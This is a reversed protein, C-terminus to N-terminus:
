GAEEVWSLAAAVRRNRAPDDRLLGLKGFLTSVCGEVTKPSLSLARAIGANSYGQGLLAHVARESPTLGVPTPRSGRVGQLHELVPEIGTLDGLSLVVLRGRLPRASGPRPGLSRTALVPAPARGNAPGGIAPGGGASRGGASRGNALSGNAPSGNAPSGNTTRDAQSPRRTLSLRVPPPLAAGRHIGDHLAVVDVGRDLVAGLGVPDARPDALLVLGDRGARVDVGRLETTEQAVVVGRLRLQLALGRRVLPPGGAVSV